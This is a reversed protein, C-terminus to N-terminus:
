ISDINIVVHWFSVSNYLRYLLLQMGSHSVRHLRYYYSCARIVREISDINIVAHWFPESYRTLLLLQM